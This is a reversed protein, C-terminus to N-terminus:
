GKNIIERILSLIDNLANPKGIRLSAASMESLYERHNIFYKMKDLLTEGNLEADSIMEAAGKSVLARANHEQHNGTAFPFPILLAPLGRVTIEALTAAGSRCIVLDAAAMAEPMNYLYPTIHVNDLLNAQLGESQMLEMFNDSQSNGTVHLLQLEPIGAIFRLAQAIAKNLSLAGQSGGFSLALLKGTDLGMNKRADERSASIIETRVPLGTISVPTKSPFFPLAEEFTAAVRDVRRSLIRNTVGPLANQEHILTPIKMRAAALVVPGCVYGGTGVVVQPKFKRLLKKAEQYGSIVQWPVKLNHMSLSRKLGMARVTQFDFGAKPVIDAELGLATGIYLIKSNSFSTKLGNAIALAPYIHGGTGGGTVIFRLPKVERYVLVTDPYM